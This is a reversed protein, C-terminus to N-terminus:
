VTPMKKEQQPQDQQPQGQQIAIQQPQAMQMAIKEFDGQRTPPLQLALSTPGEGQSVIFGHKGHLVNIDQDLKYGPSKSITDVAVAAADRDGRTGKLAQEFHRNVPDNGSALKSSASAIPLAHDVNTPERPTVPHRQDIYAKAADKTVAYIEGNSELTAGGNRYWERARSEYIDQRRTDFNRETNRIAGAVDPNSGLSAIANSEFDSDTSIEFSVKGTKSAEDGVTGAVSGYRGVGAEHKIDSIAFGSQGLKAIMDQRAGNFLVAQASRTVELFPIEDQKASTKQIQLAVELRGNDVEATILDISPIGLQNVTKSMSYSRSAIASRHPQTDRIPMLLARWVIGTRSDQPAPM